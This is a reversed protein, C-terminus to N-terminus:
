QGVSIRWPNGLNADIVNGNKDKAAASRLVLVTDSLVQNVPYFDIVAM